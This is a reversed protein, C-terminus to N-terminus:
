IGGQKLLECTRCHNYYVYGWTGYSCYSKFLTGCRICPIVKGNIELEKDGILRVKLHYMRTLIINM